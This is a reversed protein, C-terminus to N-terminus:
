IWPFGKAGRHDTDVSNSPYVEYARILKYIIFQRTCTVVHLLLQCAAACKLSCTKERRTCQVTMSM